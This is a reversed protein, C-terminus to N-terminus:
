LTGQSAKLAAVDKTDIVIWGREIATEWEARAEPDEPPNPECHSYGFLQLCYRWYGEDWKEGKATGEAMLQRKMSGDELVRELEGETTKGIM